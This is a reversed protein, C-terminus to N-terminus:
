YNKMRKPTAAAGSAFTAWPLKRKQRQVTLCNASDVQKQAQVALNTCIADPVVKRGRITNLLKRLFEADQLASVEQIIQSQLEELNSTGGKSSTVVSTTEFVERLSLKAQGRDHGSHECESSQQNQL